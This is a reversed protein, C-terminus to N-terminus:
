GVALARMRRYLKQRSWGIRRAARSVSGGAERLATAIMTRELPEEAIEETDTKKLVPFRLELHRSAIKGGEARLSARALVAHLERVNGPWHYAAL